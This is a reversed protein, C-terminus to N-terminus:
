QNSRSYSCSVSACASWVSCALSCGVHAHPRSCFPFTSFNLWTPSLQTITSDHSWVAIDDDDCDTEETSPRVLLVLNRGIRVMRYLLSLACHQTQQCVGAQATVHSCPSSHAGQQQGVSENMRMPNRVWELWTLWIGSCSGERYYSVKWFPITTSHKLCGTLHLVFSSVALSLWAFSTTHQSLFTRTVTCICMLNTNTKFFHLFSLFKLTKPPPLSSFDFWIMCLQQLGNSRFLISFLAISLNYKSYM